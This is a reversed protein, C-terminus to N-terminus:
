IVLYHFSSVLKNEKSSILFECVLRKTNTLITKCQSKIKRRYTHRIGSKITIALKM